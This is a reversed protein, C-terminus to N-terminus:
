EDAEIAMELEMAEIQNILEKMVLLLVRQDDARDGLMMGQCYLHADPNADDTYKDHLELFDPSIRSPFGPFDLVAV